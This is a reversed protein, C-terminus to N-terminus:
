PLPQSLNTNAHTMLAFTALIFTTFDRTFLVGCISSYMVCLYWICILIIDNLYLFTSKFCYIHFFTILSTINM